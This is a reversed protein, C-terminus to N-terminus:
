GSRRRPVTSTTSQCGKEGGPDAEGQVSSGALLWLLLLLGAWGLWALTFLPTLVRILPELLWHSLALTTLVIVLLSLM